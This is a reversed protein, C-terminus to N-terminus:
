EGLDKEFLEDFRYETRVVETLTSDQVLKRTAQLDLKKLAPSKAAAEAAAERANASIAEIVRSPNAMQNRLAPSLTLQLVGLDGSPLTLSLTNSDPLKKVNVHGEGQRRRIAKNAKEAIRLMQDADGHGQMAALNNALKDVAMSEIADWGSAIKSANMRAATKIAVVGSTWIEKAEDGQKGVTSEILEILDEESVDLDKALEVLTSGQAQEQMVLWAIGGMSAAPIGMVGAVVEVTIHSVFRVPNQVMANM